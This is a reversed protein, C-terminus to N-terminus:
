SSSQRAQARARYREAMEVEDSDPYSDLIRQYVREAAEYDAVEEYARGAELLYRPATLENEYQSAAEEYHSAAKKLEGRQEYISAEAALASAGFFDGEKEFRQYFRLARDYVERQYLANAAYFTALNGADTDGYEESIEILGMRDGAGNAAQEFAGREYVPLIRGLLENAEQARQDQYWMYGPVALILAVLGVGLGYVLTRNDEYFLLLWGYLEVLWNRRLEKRRSTKEPTKLATMHLVALSVPWRIPIRSVNGLDEIRRSETYRVAARENGNGRIRCKPSGRKCTIKVFDVQRYKMGDGKRRV